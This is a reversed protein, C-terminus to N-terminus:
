VGPITGGDTMTDTVVIINPDPPTTPPAPNTPTTMTGETQLEIISANPSQYSKSM